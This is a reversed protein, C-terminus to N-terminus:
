VSFLVGYVGEHIRKTLFTPELAPLVLALNGLLPGTVNDRGDPGDCVPAGADPPPLCSPPELCSCTRDLDLSQPRPLGADFEGTDVRLDEVAFFLDGVSAGDGGDSREPPSAHVCVDVDLKVDAGADLRGSTLDGLNGPGCALALGVACTTGLLATLVVRRNM